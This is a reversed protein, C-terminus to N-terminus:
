VGNMHQCVVAIEGNQWFYDEWFLENEEEQILINNQTQIIFDNDNQIIKNIKDQWESEMETILVLEQEWEEPSMEYDDLTNDSAISLTDLEEFACIADIHAQSDDIAKGDATATAPQFEHLKSAPMFLSKVDSKNYTVTDQPGQSIPPPHYEPEM